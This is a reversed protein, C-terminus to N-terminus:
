NLLLYAWGGMKTVKSNDSIKDLPNIIFHWKLFCLINTSFYLFRERNCFEPHLDTKLAPTASPVNAKAVGSIGQRLYILSIMGKILLGEFFTRMTEKSIYEQMVRQLVSQRIELKRTNTKYYSFFFFFVCCFHWM